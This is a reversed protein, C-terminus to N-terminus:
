RLAFVLIAVGAVINLLWYLALDRTRAARPRRIDTM